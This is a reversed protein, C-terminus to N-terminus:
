IRNGHSDCCGCELITPAAKWNTLFEADAVPNESSSGFAVGQDSNIRWFGGHKRTAARHDERLEELTDQGFEGSYMTKTKWAKADEDFRQLTVYTLTTATM